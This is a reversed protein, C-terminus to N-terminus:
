SHLRTYCANSHWPPRLWLSLPKLSLFTKDALEPPKLNWTSTSAPGRGRFAGPHSLGVREEIHAAGQPRADRSCDKSHACRHGCKRKLLSVLCLPAVGSWTVEGYSAADTIVGNGFCTGDQPVLPLSKPVPAKPPFLEGVAGHCARRRSFGGNGRPSQSLVQLERIIRAYISNCELRQQFFFRGRHPKLLTRHPPSAGPPHARLSSSEFGVKM